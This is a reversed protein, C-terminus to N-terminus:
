EHGIAGKVSAIQRAYSYADVHEGTELSDIRFMDEKEIEFNLIDFNARIREENSSSVIPTIKNQLHWRLVIQAPSKSYKKSIEVVAPLKMSKGKFLPSWAIISMGLGRCLEALERQQFNPHVELQNAKIPIRATKLLIKIHHALFNSVGLNKILGKEVCDEMARWSEANLKEWVSEMYRPVPWHIMYFDIHNIPMCALSDQIQDIQAKYADFNKPNESSRKANSDLSIIILEDRPIGSAAIARGMGRENEYAACTNIIRYGAELAISTTRYSEEDSTYTAGFGISLSDVM